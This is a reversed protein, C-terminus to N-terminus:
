TSLFIASFLRATLSLRLHFEAEQAGLDVDSAHDDQDTEGDADLLFEVTGANQYGVHRALAVAAETVRARVEASITPLGYKPSM